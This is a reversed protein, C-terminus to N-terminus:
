SLTQPLGQASSSSTKVEFHTLHDQNTPCRPPRALIAEVFHSFSAPFKNHTVESHMVAWLREIANLHTCLRAPLRAHHPLRTEGAVAPDCPRSSLPRQRRHRPDAEQRPQQGGVECAARHHLRCRDARGRGSPLPFDTSIRWTSRQTSTSASAGRHGECRWRTAKASGAMRPAPSTSRTCPMPSTSSRTPPWGTSCNTTDRSSPPRSPRM